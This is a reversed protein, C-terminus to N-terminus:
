LVNQLLSAMYKPLHFKLLWSGFHKKSKYCNKGHILEIAMSADLLCKQM